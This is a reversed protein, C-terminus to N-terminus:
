STYLQFGDYASVSNIDYECGDQCCILKNDSYIYASFKGTRDQSIYYTNSKYKFCLFGNKGRSYKLRHEKGFSDLFVVRKGNSDTVYGKVLIFSSYDLKGTVNIQSRSENIAAATSNWRMFGHDRTKNLDQLFFTEGDDATIYNGEKKYAKYKGKNSQVDVLRIYYIWGNYKIIAFGYNDSFVSVYHAKGTFDYFKFKGSTMQGAIKIVYKASLPIRQERALSVTGHLKSM